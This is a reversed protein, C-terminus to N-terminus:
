KPFFSFLIDVFRRGVLDPSVCRAQGKVAGLRPLGQMYFSRKILYSLAGGEEHASVGQSGARVRGHRGKISDM